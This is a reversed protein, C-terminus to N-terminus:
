AEKNITAQPYEEHILGAEAMASAWIPRHNIQMVKMVTKEPASISQQVETALVVESQTALLEKRLEVTILRKPTLLSLGMTLTVLMLWLAKQWVANDAEWSQTNATSAQM